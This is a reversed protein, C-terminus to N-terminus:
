RVQAYSEHLIAASRQFLAVEVESLRPTLVREIGQRGVVKPLSTSIDRVDYQGSLPSSVSLVTHQDRVVAEIIAVLGLGIAYYTAQKRKIIEYAANRVQLAISDLAAQDFTHGNPGTYDHLSVGGIDAISWTALSSDGHEGIIYGHVSRPDVGYHEGLLVRFRATDLITGSGIVRGRDPGAIEASIHTLIDVPNTAVVIICRENVALIRPVVDRFVAANVKLLDLRTQGPRQNAGAAIVVVDAGALDSYDGAYVRTPRVFSMGHTLDMAEGEAREHNADVLVLESVLSRQILAYAFSSGVMGTGVLGVKGTRQDSM